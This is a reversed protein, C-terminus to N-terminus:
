LMNVCFLTFVRKLIIKCSVPFLTNSFYILCMNKISLVLKGKFIIFTSTDGFYFIEMRFINNIQDRLFSVVTELLIRSLCLVDQLKNTHGTKFYIKFSIVITVKLDRIKFLYMNFLLGQIQKIICYIRFQLVYISQYCM